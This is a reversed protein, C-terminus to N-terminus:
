KLMVMKRTKEYNGAKLRYLYVGNACLVRRNDRGDWNVRYYGAKKQEAVLTRVVQGLMNYIKLTVHGPEPLQFKITTEPNFPNPYNHSLHYETPLNRLDGAVSTIISGLDIFDGFSKWTLKVPIEYDNFYISIENGAKAGEDISTNPDDGYVPMFGFTGPTTVVFEGCTIGDPDKASIRTGAPLLEGDLKIEQGYINIWENTPIFNQGTSALLKFLIPDEGPLQVRLPEPYTLSDAQTLNLWYGYSPGLIHLTSFEPKAPDFTIAGNKFGYARILKDIVTEFAHAVSDPKRPLYSVLNWGPECAISTEMIDAPNGIVLLTDTQAMRIWYGHLHDMEKLNSMNPNKPDYVLAGNEYSLVVTVNPLIDELIKHTSDEATKVYWSILSWGTMLPIKVTDIEAVYLDVNRMEGHNTWVPSDPGLAEAEYGNIKFIITDGPEAGEDIDPTYSDDRYVPMYGYYNPKDVTFIGCVVGGTDEATIVDGIQVPGDWFISNSSFFDVWETTPTISEVPELSFNLNFTNGPVKEKFAPVYGRAFARVTYIGGVPPVALFYKGDAETTDQYIIMGNPYEDWVQAVAHELPIVGSRIVGTIPEAVRVHMRTPIVVSSDLPDSSRIVIDAHLVTDVVVDKANFEVDIAHTSDKPIVGATQDLQIWPVGTSIYIAMLDHVYETNFAIELGDSGDYNQIGVTASYSSSQMTLYQFIISGNKDLIIQFTNRESYSKQVNNCQIILKNGDTYYYASSNMDYSLDDWFPAILNFVSQNPIPDNSWDTSMSTFSIFGNSCFRFTSFSNGYFPFSFGIPFPGVNDDSGPLTIQTGVQTIDIWNFAPGGAEDSDMWYYGFNDPGGANHIVPAGKRPDNDGKKLVISSFEEPYIRAAPEFQIFSNTGTGPLTLIRYNLHYEGVNSITLQPKGKISDGSIVTVDYNEPTVQIVPPHTIAVDDVFWDDLKGISGINRFRLQFANHYAETPLLIMEPEFETMDLGDGPHQKLNVWSLSSNLYDIWLDEGTEPSNGSGTRQWAYALVVVSDQSLNILTSHVEDGGTSDGNFNLSYPPTPPNSGLNNVEAPGSNYIWKGPELQVTAFNDFWPITDPTGVSFSVIAASKLLNPKGASVIIVHATDTDGYVTNGPIEVRAIFGLTAKSAVAGTNTIQTTGSSDWFTTHWSNGSATLNYSDTLQGYNKIMVRYSLTDGAIGKTSQDAPSARFYYDVPNVTLSVAISTDEEVPMSHVNITATYTTDPLLGAEDTAYLTVVVIASDGPTVSGARPDEKLWTFLPEGSDVLYVTNNDQCVVWLNGDNDVELGAGWYGDGVGPAAFQSLITGNIPNVKYIIDPTGNIAIWLSGAPHWGLGSVSMFSFSSLVEGPNNWSLGKIRYVMDDNWGGVYFVDESPDYALGRQSTADWNYNPDHISNVVAGTAPDLQYIGNDGGVNVQWLYQGDYALDGPWSGIWSSCNFSGLRVGETTIEHDELADVDSIWVNAKDFGVGWPSIIPGPAPWSKLVDGEALIGSNKNIMSGTYLGETTRANKDFSPDKTVDDENDPNYFSTEIFNTNFNNSNFSHNVTFFLSGKGANKITLTGSTSDGLDVYFDFPDPDPVVVMDPGWTILVDDIFWDDFAGATAANRFRIKFNRHYADAPLGVAVSDFNSMDPGDGFHQKLNMWTGSASFYDVWLDDGSEPSDGGGTRQWNYKLIVGSEASLDIANSQIEDGGAADGNLNLSYPPSPPNMGSTSIQAPGTNYPWKLPDLTTFDDFWPIRDLQIFKTLVAAEAFIAAETVSTARIRATDTEGIAAGIPIEVKVMVDLEETSALIGTNSIQNTGTSDWITTQWSFNLAELNYSDSQLGINKVKVLFSVTEGSDGNATQFPPFLSVRLTDTIMQGLLNVNDIGWFWEYEANYYHWRFQVSSQYDVFSPLRVVIERAADVVNYSSNDVFSAVTQWPGNHIRVDIDGREINGTRYNQFWNNFVLRMDSFMSCDIIPSTLSADIPVNGEYDSDVIMFPPTWVDYGVKISGPEYIDDFDIDRNGPDDDHWSTDAIWTPPLGYDFNETFITAMLPWDTQSVATFANIRGEGLLGNKYGPNILDINDSTYQVRQKVGQWGLGPFQSNILGILGVVNPAAMSTGRLWEYTHSGTTHDFYTSFIENNIPPSDGGPAAVDVWYGYSSYSAKTDNPDTAAVSIVDQRSCLFSADSLDDNGASSVVVTGMSSAFNVADEIGGTNSSGWSCNVASAGNLAAYYIAQACFSMDVLGVEYGGYSASWGVRLPMIKCNWGLGAIGVGNDTIASAIGACHTGHGNFDMPNNDPITGDEGPYPPYDSSTVNVWDWGRTDDIYGNSDDDVGTTGYYEVWNTWISGQLYPSSGGLDPHLWDVGTDVIALIISTDGLTIDWANPAQIIPLGWQNSFSPDNPITASVKHIGVPQAYEVNADNAYSKVVERIDPVAPFELRYIKPLGHEVARSLAASGPFLQTMVNVKFRANLNDFSKIGTIVTGKEARLKAKDVESYLKIVIRDNTFYPKFDGSFAIEKGGQPHTTSYLFVMAFSLLCFSIVIKVSKKVQM